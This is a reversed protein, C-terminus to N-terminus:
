YAFEYEEWWIRRVEIGDLLGKGRDFCEEAAVPFVRTQTQNIM